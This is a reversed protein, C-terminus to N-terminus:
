LVMKFMVFPMIGLTLLRTHAVNDTFIRPMVRQVRMTPCDFFGVMTGSRFVANGLKLVVTHTWSM